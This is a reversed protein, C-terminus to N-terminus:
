EQREVATLEQGLVDYAFRVPKGADRSEKLRAFWVEFYEHDRPLFYIAAHHRFHVAVNEASAIDLKEVIDTEFTAEAQKDNSSSLKYITPPEAAAVLEPAGLLLVGALASIVLRSKGPNAGVQSAEVLEKAEKLGMGTHERLRQIAEIKKGRQLAQLVAAPLPDVSRTLQVPNHQLHSEIVEKAEKLGLGSSERLLKIAEILKGHQLAGLVNRPLPDSPHRM